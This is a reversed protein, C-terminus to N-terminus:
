NCFSKKIFSLNEEEICHVVSSLSTQKFPSIKADIALDPRSYSMKDFM